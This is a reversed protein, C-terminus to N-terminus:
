KFFPFPPSTDKATIQLVQPGLFINGTQYACTSIDVLKGSSSGLQSIIQRVPLESRFIGPYSDPVSAVVRFSLDNICMLYVIVANNQCSQELESLRYLMKQYQITMVKEKLPSTIAIKQIQFYGFFVNKRLDKTVQMLIGCFFLRKLATLSSHFYLTM